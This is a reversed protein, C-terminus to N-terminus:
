LPIAFLDCGILSFAAAADVLQKLNKSNGNSELERQVGSYFVGPAKQGPLV